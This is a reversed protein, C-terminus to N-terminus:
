IRFVLLSGAFLAMILLGMSAYEVVLVKMGLKQSRHHWIGWAVYGSALSLVLSMQMWIQRNFLVYFFTWFVLGLVLLSLDLAKRQLSTQQIKM